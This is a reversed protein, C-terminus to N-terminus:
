NRSTRTDVKFFERIDQLPIVQVANSVADKYEPLDSPKIPDELPEGTEMDTFIEKGVIMFHTTNQYSDQVNIGMRKLLLKLEKENFAGSFRGVLIANRGGTPDYLPNIIVDGAVIPSFADVQGVVAVEAMKAEVAVVEVMGRLARKGPTGSEVRFRVGRVLRQESGIDIWGLGLKDSMSVIKGDPYDSFPDKSFRLDNALENMRTQMALKEKEFDRANEAISNESRRFEVDKDSLNQNATALRRELEENRSAATQTEDALQSRLEDIQSQKETTIQGITNDKVTLESQMGQVRTELEGIQRGRATYAAKLKPLSKEFDGDDAGLDSFTDRLELVASRVLEVNARPDASDADYWGVAESLERAYKSAENALAEAEAKDAIAIEKAERETTLDSSAVFGFVMAVLFMVGAVIIWVISVRAAGRNSRLM